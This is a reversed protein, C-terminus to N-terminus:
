YSNCPASFGWTGECLGKSEHRGRGNSRRSSVWGRAAGGGPFGAAARPLAGGSRERGSVCAGRAGVHAPGEGGGGVCGRARAARVRRSRQAWRALQRRQSSSESSAAARPTDDGETWWLGSVESIRSQTQPSRFAVWVGNQRVGRLYVCVLM